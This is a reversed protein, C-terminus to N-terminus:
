RSSQAGAPHHQPPTLRSLLLAWALVPLQPVVQLGGAAGRLRSVCVSGPPVFGVLNFLHSNTWLTKTGSKLFSVKLLISSFLLTLPVVLAYQCQELVQCLYFLCVRDSLVESQPPIVRSEWKEVEKTKQLVKQLLILFNRPDRKVLEELCWNNICLGAARLSVSARLSCLENRSKPKVRIVELVCMLCLFDRLLVQM